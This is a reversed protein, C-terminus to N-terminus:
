KIFVVSNLLGPTGQELVCRENLKEKEYSSDTKTIAAQILEKREEVAQSEGNGNLIITQDKSITIQPHTFLNQHKFVLRRSPCKIPHLKM